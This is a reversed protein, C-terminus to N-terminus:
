LTRGALGEVVELVSIFDADALGRGIGRPSCNASRRLPRSPCAPASDRTSRLRVDKLMDAARFLTTYDHNIMPDAKLTLMTSNGRGRRRMIQVLADLDAGLATEVVLAQALTSANAAAVANNILKVTQGQGHERRHAPDARGDGRVPPKAREYDAADGGAMITLTGDEAKPSEAPSPHTSSPSARTRRAEAAM